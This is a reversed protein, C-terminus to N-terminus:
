TTPILLEQSWLKTEIVFEVYSGYFTRKTRKNVARCQDLSYVWDTDLIHITKTTRKTRIKNLSEEFTLLTKM